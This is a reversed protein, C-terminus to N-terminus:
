LVGHAGRANSATVGKQNVRIAKFKGRVELCVGNAAEVVRTAPTTTVLSVGAVAAIWNTGDLSVDIDVTGATCEIYHVNYASVDPSTYVVANDAAGAAGVWDLYWSEPYLGRYDAAIEVDEIKHSWGSESAIYVRSTDTELFKSGSPITSVSPKQDTSLGVYVHLGSRSVKIKEVSM